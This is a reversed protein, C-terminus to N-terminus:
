FPCQVNIVGCKRPLDRALSKMKDSVVLRRFGSLKSKICQCAEQREAENLAGVGQCCERDKKEGSSTIYEVCPFLKKNVEDCSSAAKAMPNVILMWLMAVMCVLKLNRAAM